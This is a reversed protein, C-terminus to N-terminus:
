LTSVDLDLSEVRLYLTIKNGESDSTFIARQNSEALQFKFLTDKYKEKKFAKIVRKHLSRPSALVVKGDKKLKEWAEKYMGM